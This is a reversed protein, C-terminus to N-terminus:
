IAASPAFRDTARGRLTQEPEFVLEFSGSRSFVTGYEHGRLVAISRDLAFGNRVNSSRCNIFLGPSEVSRAM